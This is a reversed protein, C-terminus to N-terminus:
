AAIRLRALAGRPERASVEVRGRDGFVIRLREAVNALGHGARAADAPSGAFGTGDDAVEIVVNAGQVYARVDVTLPEGPRMGHRVANEILPQVVLAPLRTSRLAEPVSLTYRFAPGFRTQLLQMYSEAFELEEGLAVDAADGHSLATRLLSGLRALTDFADDRRGSQVFGAITNLGNLLFHPNIRAQLAQLRSEALLARTQSDRMAADAAAWRARERQRVAILFAIAALACVLISVNM